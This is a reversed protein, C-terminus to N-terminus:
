INEEQLVPRLICSTFYELWKALGVLSYWAEQSELFTQEIIFFMLVGGGGWSRWIHKLEIFFLVENQQLM